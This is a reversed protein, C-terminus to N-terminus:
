ARRARELVVALRTRRHRAAVFAPQAGPRRSGSSWRSTTSPEVEAPVCHASKLVLVRRAPTGAAFYGDLDVAKGAGPLNDFGRRCAERIRNEAIREWSM